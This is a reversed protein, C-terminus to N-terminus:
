DKKDAEGFHFDEYDEPSFRHYILHAGEDTICYRFADPEGDEFYVLYDFGGHTTKEVHVRDSYQYFIQLLEEITCGHKEITRIFEHIFGARDMHGHVYDAGEPPIILCFREGKNGTEIKGFLNGAEEAFQQLTQNMQRVDMNESLLRNLSSLPYYLRISESRYGLKIQEETIVDIINQKLKDYDM